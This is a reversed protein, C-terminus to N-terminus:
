ATGARRIFVNHKLAFHLLQGVAKFSRFAVPRGKTASRFVPDSKLTKLFGHIGHDIMQLSDVILAFLLEVFDPLNQRFQGLTHFCGLNGGLAILFPGTGVCKAIRKLVKRLAHRLHLLRDM